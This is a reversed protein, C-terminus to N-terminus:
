LRKSAGMPTKGIGGGRTVRAISCRPMIAIDTNGAGGPILAPRLMFKVEINGRQFASIGLEHVNKM